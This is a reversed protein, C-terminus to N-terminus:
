GYRGGGRQPINKIKVDSYCQGVRDIARQITMAGYTGGARRSDWKPRMLGSARFIRDMQEANCSCWFALINCLTLDARSDDGGYESTDGRMLSRFREGNKASSARQIVQEDSLCLVTKITQKKGDSPVERRMFRDLVQQLQSARSNISKGDVTNGTISVYKNTHGAAYIELGVKQNNIYYKEKDYRFGPATFLIRLGSGSPSIETYSDMLDYVESAMDSWVGDESICHDIDVACLTGFVGVGIGDYGCMDAAFIAQEFTGFTRVDNSKALQGSVPSFPVKTPKMSGPRMWYKWCCWHANRKLREPINQIQIDSM